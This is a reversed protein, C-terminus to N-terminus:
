CYFNELLVLDESDVWVRKLENLLADFIRNEHTTEFPQIRYAQVTM